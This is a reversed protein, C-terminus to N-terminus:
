RPGQPKPAQRGACTVLMARLLMVNPHTLRRRDIQEIAKAAAFELNADAPLATFWAAFVDIAAPMPEDAREPFRRAVRPFPIINDIHASM